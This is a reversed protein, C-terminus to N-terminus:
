NSVVHSRASGQGAAAERSLGSVSPPEWGLNMQALESQILRLDWVHVPGHRYLVALHAGDPSFRLHYIDNADPAQLTALERHTATEVLQVTDRNISLAMVSSDPSFAMFAFYGADERRVCYLRQWTGVEWLCFELNDGTLLWKGNPSFAPSADDWGSHHFEKILQGTQVSFVQIPFFRQDPNGAGCAVLAGDPSFSTHLRAAAQAQIVAETGNDLNLLHISGQTSFGLTAADRGLFLEQALSGSLTRETSGTRPEGSGDEIIARASISSDTAVFITDPVRSFIAYRTGEQPVFKLMRGSEVDWLRVGDQHATLLRRNDPSFDCNQGQPGASSGPRLLRCERAPSLELLAWRCQGANYAYRYNSSGFGSSFGPVRQKFLQQGTWPDWFRLIGDWGRSALFQGDFSFSVERPMGSHGPLVHVPRDKQWDWLYVHYDACASALVQGDPSWAIQALGAPHKLRRVVSGTELDWIRLETDEDSSTALLNRTPHFQVTWPRMGHELTQLHKTALLDYIEIPHNTDAGHQFAIAVLRGDPSFDLTRCDRGPFRMQAARRELDWIEFDPPRGHGIGLWRGDPSFRLPRDEIPLSFGPLRLIESDDTVRRISLLGNTRCLWAYRQYSRDYAVPGNPLPEGTKVLQLDTLALSAIAENRLALSPRIAAAKRLAELAGARRGPEGSLRNARAEDLYSHWLRDRAQAAEADARHRQVSESSAANRALWAEKIAFFYPVVGLLMTALIAAGARTTIRLQRELRQARKVSKGALLLLLDQHMAEASAYRNRAEPQCAKLVVANFERLPQEETKPIPEWPLDPFERRDKGTSIEYLVKGLSYLDARPTGPGEPPLYGETGVFSCTADITAVMGIDALKPRGNVFIINAPKIDRHILGHKHLHDLATTLALGIKVCEEVPLRGRAKSESRLTKPVYRGPDVTQGSSQDDALEMVHYFYGGAENQGVHLINVQSEHSRSIPEFKRLGEFERCYPRDSDFTARYVIKVARYVGMINRALWVEGYSGRGICRLLEHDPIQPRAPHEQVIGEAAALTSQAAAQRDLQSTKDM